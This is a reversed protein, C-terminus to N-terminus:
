NSFVGLVLLLEAATYLINKNKLKNNGNLIRYIICKAILNVTKADLQTSNKHDTPKTEPNQKTKQM